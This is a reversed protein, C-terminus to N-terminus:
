QLERYTEKVQSTDDNMAGKPRSADNSEEPPVCQQERQDPHMMTEKLRSVDTSGVSANNSQEPKTM